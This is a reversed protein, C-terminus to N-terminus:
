FHVDLGIGLSQPTSNADGKPLDQSISLYKYDLKLVLGTGLLYNFGVQAAVGTKLNTIDGTKSDSHYSYALGTGIYPIFRKKVNFGYKATVAGPIVTKTESSANTLNGAGM